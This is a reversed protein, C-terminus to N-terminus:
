KVPYRCAFRLAKIFTITLSLAAFTQSGSQILSQAISTEENWPPLALRM